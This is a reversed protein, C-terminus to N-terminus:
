RKGFAQRVQDERVHGYAHDHDKEQQKQNAHKRGPASSFSQRLATCVNAKISEKASQRLQQDIAYQHHDTLAPANRSASSCVAASASIMATMSASETTVGAQSLFRTGVKM